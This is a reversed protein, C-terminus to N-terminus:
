CNTLAWPEEGPLAPTLGIDGAGIGANLVAPTVAADSFTAPAYYPGTTGNPNVVEGSVYQTIVDGQAVGVWCMLALSCLLKRM